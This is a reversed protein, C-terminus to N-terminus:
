GWLTLFAEFTWTLQLLELWGFLNLDASYTLNLVCWFVMEKFDFQMQCLNSSLRSQGTNFLRASWYCFQKNGMCTKPSQFCLEAWQEWGGWARPESYPSDTVMEIHSWPSTRPGLWNTRRLSTTWQSSPPITRWLSRVRRWYPSDTVMDVHSWPSTRPCLRRTGRWTTTWTKAPWLTRIVERLKKWGQCLQDM